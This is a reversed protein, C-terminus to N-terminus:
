EGRTFPALARLTTVVINEGSQYGIMLVQDDALFNNFQATEGTNDQFQSSTNITIAISDTQGRPQFDFGNRRLTKLSGLYVIPQNPRPSATTFIIRKAVFTDNEMLGMVVAWSGVEINEPQIAAGNRTLLVGGTLPVIRTTGRIELALTEESVRVVQGIFGRRQNTFEGLVAEVKEKQQEVINQIRERLSNTTETPAISPTPTPESQALSQSVPMPATLLLTAAVLLSKLSTFWWTKKNM